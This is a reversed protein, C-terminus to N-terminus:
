NIFYENLYNYYYYKVNKNEQLRNNSIINLVSIKFHSLYSSLLDPIINYYNNNFYLIYNNSCNILTPSILKKSTDNIIINNCNLDEFVLKYYVIDKESILHNLYITVKNALINSFVKLKKINTVFKDKNIVDGNNIYKSKIQIVNGNKNIYIYNSNFYCTINNM